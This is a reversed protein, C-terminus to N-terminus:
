AAWFEVIHDLGDEEETGRTVDAASDKLMQDICRTVPVDGREHAVLILRLLQVREANLGDYARKVVRVLDLLSSGFSVDDDM